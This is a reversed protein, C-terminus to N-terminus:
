QGLAIRGEEIEIERFLNKLTEYKEVLDMTMGVTGIANVKKEVEHSIEQILNMRKMAENKVLHSDAHIMPRGELVNKERNSLGKMTSLNERVLTTSM